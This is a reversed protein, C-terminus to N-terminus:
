LPSAQVTPRRMRHAETYRTHAHVRRPSSETGYHRIDLPMDFNTYTECAASRAHDKSVHAAPHNLRVPQLAGPIEYRLSFGKRANEGILIDVVQQIAAERKVNPEDNDAVVV